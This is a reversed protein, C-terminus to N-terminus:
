NKVKIKLASTGNPAITVTKHYTKGHRTITLKARGPVLGSLKVKGTRTATHIHLTKKVKKGTMPNTVIVQETADVTTDETDDGVQDGNQDDIECDVQNTFDKVEISTAVLLPLKTQDLTVEASQGVALDAVTTSVTQSDDDNSGDFSATSIDIKLGLMTVTNAITDVAQLPALIKIHDDYAGEESLETATLPTADSALKVKVIMGPVFSALTIPTGGSDGNEGDDNSDNSENNDDNGLASAPVAITLGLVTITNATTDVADLPGVIAIELNNSEDSLAVSASIIFIPFILAILLKRFM